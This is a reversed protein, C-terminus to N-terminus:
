PLAGDLGRLEDRLRAAREFDESAIANKLSQDLQTRRALRATAGEIQGTQPTRGTHVATGHYRALLPEVHERFADYCHSCGFRNNALFESLTLHCVQCTPQDDSATPDHDGEAADHAEDDAIIKSALIAAIPPPQTSLELGLNSICTACIHLERREGGEPALEMLHSTAPRKGCVQCVIGLM